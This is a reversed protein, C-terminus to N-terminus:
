STYILFIYFPNYVVSNLKSNSTRISQNIQYHRWGGSEALGRRAPRDVTKPKNPRPRILAFNRRTNRTQKELKGPQCTGLTAAPLLAYKGLIEIIFYISFRLILIKLFSIATIILVSERVISCAFTQKDIWCM